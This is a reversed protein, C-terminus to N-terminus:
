FYFVKPFYIFKGFGFFSVNSLYSKSISWIEEGNRIWEYKHAEDTDIEESSAKFHISLSNLAAFTLSKWVFGLNHRPIPNFLVKENHIKQKKLQRM